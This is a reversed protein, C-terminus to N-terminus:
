QLAPCGFNLVKGKVDGVCAFPHWGILQIFDKLAKVLNAFVAILM